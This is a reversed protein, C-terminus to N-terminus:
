SLSIIYKTLVFLMSLASMYDVWLGRNEIFTTIVEYIVGHFTVLIIISLDSINNDM